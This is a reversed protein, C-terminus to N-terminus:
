RRFNYLNRLDFHQLFIIIIISFESGITHYGPLPPNVPACAPAGGGGGGGLFFNISKTKQMGNQILISLIFSLYYSLADFVVLAGLAWTYVM